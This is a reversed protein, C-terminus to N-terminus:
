RARICEGLSRKDIHFYLVFPKPFVATPNRERRKSAGRFHGAMCFNYDSSASPLM